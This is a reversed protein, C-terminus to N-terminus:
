LSYLDLCFAFHGRDQSSFDGINHSSLCRKKQAPTGSKEIRMFKGPGSWRSRHRGDAEEEMQNQKGAACPNKSVEPDSEPQWSTGAVYQEPKGMIAWTRTYIIYYMCLHKLSFFSCASKVFRSKLQILKTKNRLIMPLRGVEVLHVMRFKNTGM